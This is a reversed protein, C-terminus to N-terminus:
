KIFLSILCDKKVMNVSEMRNEPHSNAEPINLAPNQDPINITAAITPIM